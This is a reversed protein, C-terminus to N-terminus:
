SDFSILFETSIQLPIADPSNRQQKRHTGNNNGTMESRIGHHNWISGTPYQPMGEKAPLRFRDSTSPEPVPLNRRSFQKWRGHINGAPKTTIRVPFPLFYGSYIENGGPEPLIRKVSGDVQTVKYMTDIFQNIRSPPMTPTTWNWM